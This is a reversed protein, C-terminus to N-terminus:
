LAFVSLDQYSVRSSSSEASATSPRSQSAADTSLTDGSGSGEDQKTSGDGLIESIRSAFELYDVQVCM